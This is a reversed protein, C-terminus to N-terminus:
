EKIKYLEIANKSLIKEKSSDSIPLNKVFKVSELPNEWPCDSGLMINESPHKNLIQVITDINNCCSALMATDMYVNELGALHELVDNWQRLGGFHALVIKLRPFAKAIRASKEPPAHIVDPSYCDWGSHFVIPLNIQQCKDYIPMLKEDDIFFGQYDPHLKIGRIGLEKIRDLELISEANDQHVSGFSIMNISEHEANLSAAVNNITTQQTPSTAINLNIFKDVGINKMFMLTGDVTGDTCPTIGSIRQLKGIARSAIAAPFTHVHTDIIM